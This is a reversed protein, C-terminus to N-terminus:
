LDKAFNKLEIPDYSFDADITILYEFNNKIAFNYATKHPTDLVL